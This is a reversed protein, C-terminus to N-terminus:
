LDIEECRLADGDTPASCQIDKPKHLFGASISVDCFDASLNEQPTGPGSNKVPREPFFLNPNNRKLNKTM